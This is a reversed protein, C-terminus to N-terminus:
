IARLDKYYVGISTDKGLGNVFPEGDENRFDRFLVVSKLLYGQDLLTEQTSNDATVSLSMQCGAGRASLESHRLLETALGIMPHEKSICLLNDAAIKTSNYGEFMQGVDYGLQKYLKHNMSRADAASSNGMDRVANWAHSLSGTSHKVIDGKEHIASIYVGIIDGVRDTALVSIQDDIAHEIIGDLVKDSTVNFTRYVPDYPLHNVAVFRAVQELHDRQIIEFKIGASAFINDTISQILGGTKELIGNQISSSEFEEM